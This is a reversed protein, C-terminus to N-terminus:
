IRVCPLLSGASGSIWLSFSPAATGKIVQDGFAHVMEEVKKWKRLFLDCLGVWVCLLLILSRRKFSTNSKSCKVGSCVASSFPCLYSGPSYLTSGLGRANLLHQQKFLFLLFPMWSQEKTAPHGHVKETGWKERPSMIPQLLYDRVERVGRADLVTGPVSSINM